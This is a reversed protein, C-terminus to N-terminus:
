LNFFIKDIEESNLDYRESITKIESQKFEAGHTCNIKASLRSISINLAKALDERKDTYLKMKSELLSKNM